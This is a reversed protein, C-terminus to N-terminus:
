WFALMSGLKFIIAVLVYFLACILLANKLGRAAGMGDADGDEHSRRLEDRDDRM